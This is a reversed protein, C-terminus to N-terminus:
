LGEREVLKGVEIQLFRTGVVRVFSRDHSVLLCTAQHELIEAELKEQGIIDVHNTPEDMLYLNPQTLRLALLGLRAKQGPSLKAIPRRQADVDFGAGALLTVSQRDGLRFRGNIFDLLTEAAPLTSMHQDIYGTVVSPSITVGPLTEGGVTARWLLHMLRSKGAGNAGNVVIRDGQFVRLLGTRFLPSRDPTTIAVNDLTVLVRAHTGRNALRIAGTRVKIVPTAAQEIAEARQSLQKAKKLWLDSGSNVGVNKLHGASRRLREVEKADRALKDERATDDDALLQRARSFPHAYLRQEDPRLFLTRNTCTDLFLRDHSAIVLAIGDTHNVIWNELIILRQLDLHNTPEDLLLVDPDTIWVRAILALRQWGGSLEALRRERLEEPTDLMDLIMGIKWANAEREGAPLARRIAESLPLDLLAAPVDQEVFGVRLDRRRTITGMGPEIRGALCHLLTTKGAGNGAILGIRDAAQIALDLNQFLPRPSVIGLGRVQILSM